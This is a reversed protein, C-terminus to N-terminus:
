EGPPAAAGASAAPAAPTAGGGRPTGRLEDLRARADALAPDLALARGYEIKAQEPRGLSQYVSGVNYHVEAPTLVSRFQTRGEGERGRRVLMLGYNVRCAVHRPDREIGKRYATEADDPRHALEYCFGLNSYGAASDNTAAM